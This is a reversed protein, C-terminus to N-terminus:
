PKLGPPFWATIHMSLFLGKELVRHWAGRCLFGLAVSRRWARFVAAFALSSGFVGLEVTSAVM